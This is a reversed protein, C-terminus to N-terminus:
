GLIAAVEVKMEPFALPSVAEGRQFRLVEAYGQPTPRRYVELAAEPLAFLWSEPVGNRAYLRIKDRDKGLSTEAVEILLFVDSVTPHANAYFDPRFRLVQIDPEPESFDNLHLPNQVSVIVDDALARQFLRDVRAVCGAHPSGIPAMEWIEGEILEVRDDEHLIGAELMTHYDSRTFLKRLPEAM